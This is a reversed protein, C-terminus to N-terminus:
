RPLMPYPTSSRRSPRRGRYWGCSGTTSNYRFNGIDEMPLLGKPLGLEEIPEISKKKCIIGGKVVETGGHHSETESAM